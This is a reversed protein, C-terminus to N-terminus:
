VRVGGDTVFLAAVGGAMEVPSDRATESRAEETRNALLQNEVLPSDTKPDISESLDDLSDM